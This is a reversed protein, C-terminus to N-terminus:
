DNEPGRIHWGHLQILSGNNPGGIVQIMCEERHNQVLNKPLKVTIELDDLDDDDVRTRASIIASKVADFVDNRLVLNKVHGIETTEIIIRVPYELNYQTKRIIKITGSEIQDLSSEDSM